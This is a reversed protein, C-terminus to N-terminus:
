SDRAWLAYLTGDRDIPITSVGTNADFGFTSGAGTFLALADNRVTTWGQFTYGPRVPNAVPRTVHEGDYVRQAAFANLNFAPATGGNLDFTITWRTGTREWMATFVMNATIPTGNEGTTVVRQENGNNCWGIFDYGERVPTEIGIVPTGDDVTHTAISNGGATDFTVIWIKVWKAYVTMDDSVVANAALPTNCVEDTFWGDFRYGDRAPAPDPVTVPAGNEVYMRLATDTGAETDSIFTVTHIVTGTPVWRAYLTIDETIPAASNYPVNNAGGDANTGTVWGVFDYGDRHPATPLAVADGHNVVQAPLADGSGTNFTVTHTLVRWQATLTLDGTVASSFDYIGASGDASTSWGTFVYGDKTPDDPRIITAGDGLTQSPIQTGGASDFTVVHGRAWKAWLQMRQTIPTAFDFDHTGDEDTTWGLFVYGDRHPIQDAALPVLASGVQIIQAPVTQDTRTKFTVPVVHPRYTYVTEDGSILWIEASGTASQGAAVTIASEPIARDMDPDKESWADGGGRVIFRLNRNGKTTEQMSYRAVMGYDDHETFSVARGSSTENSWVWLDWGHWTGTATDYDQYDGDARLYHITVEIQAPNKVDNPVPTAAPTRKEASSAYAVAPNGATADVWTEVAGRVSSRANGDWGDEVQATYSDATGRVAAADEAARDVIRYSVATVDGNIATTMRRGWSDDTSDFPVYTPGFATGASDSGWYVVGTAAQQETSSSSPHFHVTFSTNMSVACSFPMGTVAHHNHVHVQTAGVAAEYPQGSAPEDFSGSADAANTFRYRVRQADTSSITYSYWGQAADCDALVPTMSVVTGTQVAASSFAYQLYVGNDWKLSSDSQYYITLSKDGVLDTSIQSDFAPTVTRETTGGWSDKTAGTYIAIASHSDLHATFSGNSVTVTSSCDASGYVNCYEGDALTTTFTVDQGTFTNNMAFFAVDQDANGQEIQRAFGAINTAPHQWNGVHAQATANRLGIMGRVSTWRQQCIWDGAKMTAASGGNIASCTAGDFDVDPTTTATTGAAGAATDAEVYYYDSMIEPIGYDYALMFAMALEYRAGQAFNLTESGRDTDWNSAFVTARDSDILGDSITRLNAIDGNFYQRLRTAYSFENVRGNNVYQDPALEEAEGNHYIVEQRFPIQDAPVQIKESLRRKIEGLDTPSIHKASDIRFGRVGLNWLKALYSAQIDQVKPNGTNIDWMTLLRCEQVETVNTYDTIVDRCAHFDGSALGYQYNNGNEEYQTIGIGPYRGYTGNYATGAVGTQDDVWSVDNGSTHNLVADAVIQVGSANCRQIMQKLEDETGFRSHLSYSIPQYVTWWQTGRISEQPPSIQVYGVGEPGYVRECEQAITNWSQQFAVVTVDKVTGDEGDLKTTAPLGATPTNGTAAVDEAFASTTGAGAFALIVGCIAAVIRRAWHQTHQAHALSM